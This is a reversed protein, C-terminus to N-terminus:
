GKKRTSCLLKREKPEHGRTATNAGDPLLNVVIVAITSVVLVLVITAVGLLAMLAITGKSMWNDFWYRFREGFTPKNM